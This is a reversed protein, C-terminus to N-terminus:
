LHSGKLAFVPTPAAQLVRGVYGNRLGQAPHGTNYRSIAAILAASQPAAHGQAQLRRLDAHYFRGLIQGALALNVCPDFAPEWHRIGYRGLNRWEIQALGVSIGYGARTLAAATAVAEAQNRPQRRLARKGGNISIAYPNGRSEVRIIRAMTDPHVNPACQLLTPTWDIM